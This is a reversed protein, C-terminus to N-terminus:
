TYASRIAISYFEHFMFSNPFFSSPVKSLHGGTSSERCQSTSRQPPRHGGGFVQSHLRDGRGHLLTAKRAVALHRGGISENRETRQDPTSGDSFLRQM